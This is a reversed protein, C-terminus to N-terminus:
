AHGDPFRRGQPRSGFTMAAIKAPRHNLAIAGTEPLVRQRM